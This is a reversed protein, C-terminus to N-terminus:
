VAMLPMWLKEGREVHVEGLEQDGGGGEEGLAGQGNADFGVTTTVAGARFLSECDIVICSAIGLNLTELRVLLVSESRAVALSNCEVSLRTARPLGENVVCVRVISIVEMGFLAIIDIAM